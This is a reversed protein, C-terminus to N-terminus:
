NVSDEEEKFAQYFEKAAQKTDIKGYDLRTIIDLTADNLKATDWRYMTSLNTDVKKEGEVLIETALPTILESEELAQKGSESDPVGNELKQIKNAESDNMLYNILKAAAKQHKSSTPISYVMSPKTWVGTSKENSMSPYGALALEFGQEELQSKITNVNAIFEFLTVWKGELLAPAPAGEITGANDVDKKSPIIRQEVLQHYFNVLTLFDKETYNLKGNEDSIPLGTQQAVIQFFVIPSGYKAGFFNSAPYYDDPLKERMAILDEWSQPAEINFKDTVTKNYLLPRYNTSLPLGLLHDDYKLSILSEESFNTSIALEKSLTELDVLQNKYQNLWMSDLRIVDPATGGSLQTTMKEQYGGYGSFEANVKITPNEKEFATIAEQKVINRADGGWWSIRIEETKASSESSKGCAALSFSLIAIGAFKIIKKYYVKSVRRKLQNGISLILRKCTSINAQVMPITLLNLLTRAVKLQSTLSHIKNEIPETLGITLM